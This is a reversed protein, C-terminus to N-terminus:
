AAALTWENTSNLTASCWLSLEHWQKEYSHSLQANESLIARALATMMLNISESYFIEDKLMQCISVLTDKLERDNMAARIICEHFEAKIRYFGHRMDSRTDSQGGSNIGPSCENHM